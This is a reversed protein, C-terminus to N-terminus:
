GALTPSSNGNGQYTGIEHHLMNLGAQLFAVAMPGVFIGLPGLAQVGGLVSLLALLPHLKSQGHLVMPKILNDVTSIIGLGYATMFIAGGMRDAVFFLWLTVSIWVAAAGVFPIMSGVMSLMTLLFVSELRLILFAIAALIGQALASLLTAMVVARSVKDFETLLQKQYRNDLPLLRTITAIMDDGDLLFYYLAVIMVVVGIVFAGLYGPTRGALPELWALVHEQLTQRIKEANLETGLRTNLEEAVRHLGQSEMHIADSGRALDVAESVGRYIVAGIPALVIVLIAITTIAAAVRKYGRCRDRIWAHLPHFIVALLVALFLPLIFRAMVWFFIVGFLIVFVILVILSILRAM